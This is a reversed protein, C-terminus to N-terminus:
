PIVIVGPGSLSFDDIRYATVFTTTWADPTISHRIGNIFMKYTTTTGSPPTRIINVPTLIDAVLSVAASHVSIRPDTSVTEIRSVTDGQKELLFLALYDAAEDTTLPVDTRALARERYQDISTSDSRVQETGLTPTISITNYLTDDSIGFQIESVPVYGPTGADSFVYLPSTTNTPNASIINRWTIRGEKSIFLAGQETFEYEQLNPLLPRRDSTDEVLQAFYNTTEVDTFDAPWSKDLLMDEVREYSPDFDAGTYETDFNALLKTADTATTKVLAYQKKPEWQVDWRDVFGRFLVHTSGSWNASVRVQRLPRVNPYYPSLPEDPLFKSTSDSIELALTGADFHEYIQSGADKGRTIEVSQVDSTIDDFVVFGDYRDDPNYESSTTYALVGGYDIDLVQTPFTSSLDMEIKLVPRDAATAGYYTIESNYPNATEYLTTM